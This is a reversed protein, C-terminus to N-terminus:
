KSATNNVQKYKKDKEFMIEETLNEDDEDKPPPKNTEQTNQGSCVRYIEEM